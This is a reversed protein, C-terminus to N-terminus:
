ALFFNLFIFCLNLGFVCLCVSFEFVLMSTSASISLCLSLALSLSNHFSCNWFQLVISVKVIYKWVSIIIVPCVFSSLSWILLWDHRVYFKLFDHRGDLINGGCCDLPSFCQKASCAKLRQLQRGNNGWDEGVPTWYWCRWGNWYMLDLQLSWTIVLEQYVYM